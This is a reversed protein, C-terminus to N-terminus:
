CIRPLLEGAPWDVFRQGGAVTNMVVEKIADSVRGIVAAGCGEPLAQWRKLIEQGADEACIVVLRGECAVNLLDIGLLEAAARAGPSYPIVAEDLVIGWRNGSILENLVAALGGRTPDRMVRVKSALDDLALVLQHVPASDSRLAESFKFGNRAAMVAMGHDGLSGSVLVLDGGQVGSADLSFGPLLQAIGASNIYLKDAQGRGVVKTDGTVVQVGCREAATKVSDLVDGLVTLELGEEIILALSLYLPRGGSVALDNVTGYVALDGINGGPFFIPQVVFSDTSFLIKDDSLSLQMADPFGHLAAAGFRTAIEQEIFARSLRGGGGHGLVIRDNM